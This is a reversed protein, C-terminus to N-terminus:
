NDEIKTLIFSSSSIFNNNSIFKKKIHKITFKVNLLKLDSLENYNFIENIKIKTKHIQFIFPYISKYDRKYDISDLFNNFKKYHHNDIKIFLTDNKINIIKGTLKLFM